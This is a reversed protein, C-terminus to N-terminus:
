PFHSLDFDCPDFTTMHKFQAMDKQLILMVDDHAQLTTEVVELKGTMMHLEKRLFENEVALTDREECCQKLDSKLTKIEEDKEEADRGEMQQQMNKLDKQMKEITEEKSALAAKVKKARFLNKELLETRVNGTATGSVHELSMWSFDKKQLLLLGGQVYMNHVLGSVLSLGYRMFNESQNFDPHCWFNPAAYMSAEEKIYVPQQRKGDKRTSHRVLVQCEHIHARGDEKVTQVGLRKNTQTGPVAMRLRVMGDSVCREILVSDRLKETMVRLMEADDADVTVDVWKNCTLSLKFRTAVLRLRKETGNHYCFAEVTHQRGPLAAEDDVDFGMEAMKEQVSAVTEERNFCTPVFLTVAVSPTRQNKREADM